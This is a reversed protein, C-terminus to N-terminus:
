GTGQDEVEWGGSSHYKAVAAQVLVSVLNNQLVHFCNFHKICSTLSDHSCFLLIPVFSCHSFRVASTEEGLM